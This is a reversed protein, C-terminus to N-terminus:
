LANAGQYDEVLWVYVGREVAPYIPVKFEGLMQTHQFLSPLLASEDQTSVWLFQGQPHDKIDSMLAYHNTIQGDPNYILPQRANKHVRGIYFAMEALIDRSVGVLRAQPYELFLPEITHALSQWAKVRYYPDTKKSLKVGMSPGIWQWHSLLAVLFINACIGVAVWRVKGTEFWWAIVMLSAAVYSFAAWNAFARSTFALVCFLILPVFCFSALFSLAPNELLTKFRVAAAILGGFFVLGFVGFQSAFFELFHGPHILGKDLQSIEATHKYSSFNHQVNWLINPLFILFAVAAACYLKPNRLKQLLRGSVFLHVLVCPVFFVMTYKSLLGMGAALGVCLWMAWSQSEVARYYLFLTLSWFFILPADTTIFWSGFAIIPLSSFGLAGALAIVRQNSSYRFLDLGLLFVVVATASYLLISALRVAFVNDGLLQTTLYILWAVVPPKSYYGWDPTQAWGWYYAEDFFLDVNALERAWLRWLTLIILGASLVWWSQKQNLVVTM